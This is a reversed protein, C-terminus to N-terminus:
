GRGPHVVDHARGQWRGSMWLPLFRVFMWESFHGERQSAEIAQQHAGQRAYANMSATDDWLSVTAQRLLPAEGLGVAFRCGASAALSAEAGPSHRWFRLVSGPRISARTLALVPEGARALPVVGQMAQGGWSGRASSAQLVAVLCEDARERYADVLPSRSACALADDVDDFMLFVGQHDFGPRVGFGGGAGSGLVRAFRVGRERRWAAPGKVLRSLAWPVARPLRALLLLALGPPAAPSRAAREPGTGRAPAGSGGQPTVRTGEVVRAMGAIPDPYTGNLREGM